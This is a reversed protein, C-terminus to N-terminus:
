KLGKKLEAIRENVDEFTGAYTDAVCQDIIKRIEEEM